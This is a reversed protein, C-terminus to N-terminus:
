VSRMLGEGIMESVDSAIVFAHPDYRRIIDRAQKFQDYRIIIMLLNQEIRRATNKATLISSHECIERTLQEGIRELEPSIILLKKYQYMGYTMAQLTRTLIYLAIASIMAQEVGVVLSGLLIVGSEVYFVSKGPPIALKQTIIEALGITGIFSYGSTIILSIGLGALISGGVAMLLINESIHIAGTAPTSFQVLLTFSLSTLTAKLVKPKGMYNLQVAFFLLSILFIIVGLYDSFGGGLWNLVIISLGPVGGAFIAAPKYFLNVALALLFAGALMGFFELLKKGM